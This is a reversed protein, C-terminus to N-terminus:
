AIITNLCYYHIAVFIRHFSIRSVIVIANVPHYATTVITVSNFLVFPHRIIIPYIIIFKWIIYVLKFIGLLFFFSNEVDYDNFHMLLYHCFKLTKSIWKIGIAITGSLDLISSCFHLSFYLFRHFRWFFFLSGCWYVVFNVLLHTYNIWLSISKLFFEIM